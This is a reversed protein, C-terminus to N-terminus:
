LRAEPPIPPIDLDPRPADTSRRGTMAAVMADTKRKSGENSNLLYGIADGAKAVFFGLVINLLDKSEVPIPWVLLIPISGMLTLILLYIVVARTRQMILGLGARTAM